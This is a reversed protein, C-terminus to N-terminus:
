KLVQLVFEQVFKFFETEPTAAFTTQSLSRGLLPTTASLSPRPSKAASPSSPTGRRLYRQLEMLFYNMETGLERKLLQKESSPLHPDRLYRTAQSMVIYLANELVYNILSKPIIETNSDESNKHPSKVEQKMLLKVCVDRICSTFTGFSPISDQDPSPGSFGLALFPEFESCDMSQEYLIECLDPTFNKLSSLSHALVELMRHQIHILQSSPKDIDETSTQQQLKPSVSLKPRNSQGSQQELVQQLYRPRMLFAILTQSMYLMSTQLKILSEGLHLRWIRNFRSLLNIFSCTKESELMAADTMTIRSRELCEQMRDQHAGVFNLADELFSYKLLRLVISYLDLCVCLVTHWQCKEETSTLPEKLKNSSLIKPFFDTEKQYLYMVSLCTHQVLGSMVVSEAGKENKAITLLLLFAAHVCCLAQRSKIYVEMSSLLTSLVLHEQIIPLWVDTRDSQIIIEQILCCCVIQLKIRVDLIKSDDSKSMLDHPSPLERCSQLLVTCM